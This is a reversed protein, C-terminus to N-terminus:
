AIKEFSEGFVKKKSLKLQELLYNYNVNMEKLQLKLNEVETLVKEQKEGLYKVQKKLASNQALLEEYTPMNKM